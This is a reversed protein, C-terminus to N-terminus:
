TFRRGDKNQNPPTSMAKQRLAILTAFGLLCLGSTSFLGAAGFWWSALCGLGAAILFMGLTEMVMIVVEHVFRM